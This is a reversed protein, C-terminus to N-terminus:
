FILRFSPARLDDPSRATNMAALLVRLKKVHDGKRRAYRRNPRVAGLGKHRIVKIL